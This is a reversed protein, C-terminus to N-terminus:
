HTKTVNGSPSLSNQKLFFFLSLAIGHASISGKSIISHATRIKYFVTMLLGSNSDGTYGLASSFYLLGVQGREFLRLGSLEASFM